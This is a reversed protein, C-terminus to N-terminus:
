IQLVLGASSINDGGGGTQLVQTCVLVPAICIKIHDENWCAVPNKTDFPIRKSERNQSTSFSDDMILKARSININESGCTHRNATLASKAAASMTNKWSSRSDIMIAQYALTHVHLRTLKRHGPKGNGSQLIEFVDRMQDLVASIRPRSEALLSVNGYMMVHYLNPLEQENMGVSDVNPIINETLEAMLQEDSFSAMEFHIKTTPPQKILLEKVRLLREKRFKSEMPFNDMMQLGGVVLLNAKYNELESSFNELSSIFPNKHDSHVIFRNARPPVYSGWDQMAPYELLLHVDDKDVTPGSVKVDVPLQKQLEESMQAGLLVNCGEKAFRRAMVPANGGIVYQATPVKKATKVLEDFLTSNQIFREAAAGHRYFYAFVRLLEERSAITFFHEPDEPAPDSLVQRSQVIVDQCAGFGIAVRTNPNVVAKQEARLLGNLTEELRVLNKEQHYGYYFALFVVLVSLLFASSIKGCRIWLSDHSKLDSIRKDSNREKRKKSRTGM